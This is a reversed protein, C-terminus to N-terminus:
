QVTVRGDKRTIDGRQELRTMARYISEKTLNLTEGLLGLRGQLDLTASGETMTRLKLYALLRDEARRITLLNCLMRLDSYRTSLCSMFHTAYKSDKMLRERIVDRKLVRIEADEEVTASYGYHELFIHEEALAMGATAYYLILGENDADTYTEAKVKGADVFYISDVPQGQIFLLEGKKVAQTQSLHGFLDQMYNIDYYSM